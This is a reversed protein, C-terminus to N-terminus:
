GTDSVWRTWRWGHVRVVPGSVGVWRTWRWGHLTCPSVSECRPWASEGVQDVVARGGSQLNLQLNLQERVEGLGAEWREKGLYSNARTVFLM